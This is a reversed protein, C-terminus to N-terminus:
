KELIGNTWGMEKAIFHVIEEGGIILPLLLAEGINVFRAEHHENQAIKLHPYSDFAHSFIYFTFDLYPLRVYVVPLQVLDQQHLELGTEEKMERLVAQLATESFELKGGPLAWTDGYPKEIHRRMLLFRDAVHCVCSATAFVPTYHPPPNLHIM